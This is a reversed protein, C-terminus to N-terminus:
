PGNPSAIPNSFPIIGGLSALGKGGSTLFDIALSNGSVVRLAISDSVGIGRFYVSSLVEPSLTGRSPVGLTYLMSIVPLPSRGFSIVGIILYSVHSSRALRDM